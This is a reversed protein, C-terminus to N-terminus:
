YKRHKISSFGPVSVGCSVPFTPEFPSIDHTWPPTAYGDDAFQTLKPVCVSQWKDERELDRANVSVCSLLSKATAYSEPHIMTNDLPNSGNVVRLFGACQEFTKRGFQNIELLKARSEM